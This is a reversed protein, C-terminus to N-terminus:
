FYEKAETNKDFVSFMDDVYRRYDSPPTGQFNEIWLKEKHALFLNALVLALPSVQDYFKGNFLFHTECTAFKFM